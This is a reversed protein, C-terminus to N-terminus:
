DKADERPDARMAAFVLVVFAAVLTSVGVGVVFITVNIM